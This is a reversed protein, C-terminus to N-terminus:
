RESLLPPGAETKEGGSENDADAGEEDKERHKWLLEPAFQLVLIVACIVMIHSWKLLSGIVPIHFMCTGTVQEPEVPSPDALPNHDGKLIYCGNVKGIVRHVITTETGVLYTIIVGVEPSRDNTNVVIMSGIPITPVMSGSVVHFTQIGFLRMGLMFLALVMFCGM